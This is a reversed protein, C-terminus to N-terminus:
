QFIEQIVKLAADRNKPFAAIHMKIHVCDGSDTLEAVDKLMAEKDLRIYFFLEDDLRSWKQGLLTKCQNEGLLSKLTKIFTKTHSEKTMDLRFIRIKRNEFSEVMEETVSLKEKEFDLPLLKNFINKTKQIIDADGLYEEPKLFITIRANHIYLM